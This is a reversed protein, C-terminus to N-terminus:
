LNMHEGLGVVTFPLEEFHLWSIEGGTVEFAAITPEVLFYLVNRWWAIVIGWALYFLGAVVDLVAILLLLLTM